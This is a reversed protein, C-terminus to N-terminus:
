RGVATPDCITLQWPASEIRWDGDVLVLDFVGREDYESAGFPGDGYTTTVLVDVDATDDRLTTDVLTVRVGEASSAPLRVCSDVVEPDLLDMAASEDGDIVAAAYRQVVGEPTAADLPEPEGRTFVVVLAVVVLLGLVALIVILTRDPRSRAADDM